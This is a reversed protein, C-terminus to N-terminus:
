ASRPPMLQAIGRASNWSYRRASTRAPEPLPEHETRILHKPRLGDAHGHLPDFGGREQGMFLLAVDEIVVRGTEKTELGSGPVAVEVTLTTFVSDWEGTRVTSPRLYTARLLWAGPRDLVFSVRGSDDTKGLAAKAPAAGVAGVGLGAFPKGQWLLRVTFSDGVRLATPDSEPVMELAAGVPERWSEDGADGVRIFTKAVKAYTERWSKAGSSRWKARLTEDAGIEELYHTVEEPTLNLSRERTVIWLTALGDDAVPASLMLTKAGAKANASPELRAVKRALRLSRVLLRDPKVATEPNPFDMASTLHVTVRTGPEVRREAPLIWTDHAFVPPAISLLFLARCAHKM